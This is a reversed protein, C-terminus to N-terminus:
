GASILAAGALAGAAGAWQGRGIREALVLRALAVTAVPYLSALVAVVSVLGRSTALAFLVNAGVDLLGVAVVTGLSRGRVVLAAGVSLAVAIALGSATSRAVLVAWAPGETAARDIGVFYFGFGLAAVLALGVGASRGGGAHGPERSVLVIGALALVAGVIQIAAPREGTAVGVAFPVAAAAASIPAVVSMAGIAMGRYLGALGLCGAIGAGMAWLAGRLSPVSGGDVLVWVAVALAGTLQSLAVVTVVHLTRAARGGVFDGCGWSLAAGLALGVVLM